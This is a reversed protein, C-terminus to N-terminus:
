VKVSPSHSLTRSFSVSRPMLAGMQRRRRTGESVSDTSNAAHRSLTGHVPVTGLPIGEIDDLNTMAICVHNLVYQVFRSQGQVRNPEPPQFTEIVGTIKAVVPLEHDISPITAAVRPLAYGTQM